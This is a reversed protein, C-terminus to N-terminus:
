VSPFLPLFLVDIHPAEQEVGVPYWTWLGPMHGLQSDFHHSKPECAPAWDVSGCWGPSETESWIMEVATKLSM